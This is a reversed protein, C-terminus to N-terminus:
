PSALTWVGGVGDGNTEGPLSDGVFYYLPLGNYTIQREGDERVLVDLAGSADSTASPDLGEPVTLAPWNALCQGSCNSVGDTDNAFLYLTLGTPGVLFDDGVGVYATSATDPRALFWVNGVLDGNTDGAAADAAFFYLPAGNYTVQEGSATEISDFEGTADEPPEVSQGDALLLPPWNDLCNGSCNSTGPVDRTFVYLSKGDPGTLYSGLAGTTIGINLGEATDGGPTAAGGADSPAETAAPVQTASPEDDDGGSCAVALALAVTAFM